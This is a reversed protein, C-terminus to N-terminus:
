GDIFPGDGAAKRGARMQHVFQRISAFAEMGGLVHAAMARVDWLDCDTPKGWDDDALSSLLARVRENETAALLGVDARRIAPIDEVRIATDNMTPYWGKEQGDEQADSPQLVDGGGRRRPPDVSRRWPRQLDASRDARHRHRHLSRDGRS